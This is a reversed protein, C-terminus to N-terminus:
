GPRRESSYGLRESLRGAGRIAADAFRAEVQPTMRSALTSISFGAVVSGHEDRVPSAVCCVDPSSEEHDFAIGTASVRGLEALFVARDTITTPTLRHLPHTDLFVDVESRPLSGLIAKGVGTAHAPVRRGVASGMRIQLSGEEKVLYVVDAGELRAIHVTADTELSTELAIARGEAVLDVTQAYANGWVLLRPGASVLGSESVTLAGGESLTSVLEYCTNRPVGVTAAIAAIRLPDRSGAVLDVIAMARVVASVQRM